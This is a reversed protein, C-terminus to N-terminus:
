PQGDVKVYTALDFCRAQEFSDAYELKGPVEFRLVDGNREIAKVGCRSPNWRDFLCFRADPAAPNTDAREPLLVFAHDKLSLCVYIGADPIGYSRALCAAVQSGEGCNAFQCYQSSGTYTKEVIERRVAECFAAPDSTTGIRAGIGSRSCAWKAEALNRSCGNVRGGVTASFRDMEDGLLQVRREYRAALAKADPEPWHYRFKARPLLADFPAALSPGGSGVGFLLIGLACLGLRRSKM